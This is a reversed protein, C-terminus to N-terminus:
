LQNLLLPENVFFKATASPPAAQTLLEFRFGGSQPGCNMASVCLRFASLSFLFADKSPSLTAAPKWGSLAPTSFYRIGIARLGPHDFPSGQRIKASQRFDEKTSLSDSVARECDSHDSIAQHSLDSFEFPVSFHNEFRRVQSGVVGQLNQYQPSRTPHILDVHRLRHLNEGSAEARLM